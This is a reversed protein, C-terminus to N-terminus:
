YCGKWDHWQSIYLPVSGLRVALEAFGGAVGLQLLEDATVLEHRELHGQLLTDVPEQLVVLANWQKRRERRFSPQRMYCRWSQVENPHHRPHRNATTPVHLSYDCVRQAIMAAIAAAGPLSQSSEM